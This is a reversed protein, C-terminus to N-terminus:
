ANPADSLKDLDATANAAEDKADYPAARTLPELQDRHWEDATEDPSDKVVASTLPELQDRHWEYLPLRKFEEFSLRSAKLWQAFEDATAFSLQMPPAVAAHTEVRVDIEGDCHPCTARMTTSAM